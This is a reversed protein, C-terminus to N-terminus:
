QVYKRHFILHLLFEAVSSFLLTQADIHKHFLLSHGLQSYNKNQLISKLHITFLLFVTTSSKTPNQNSNTTETRFLKSM